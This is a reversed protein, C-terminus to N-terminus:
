SAQTGFYRLGLSMNYYYAIALDLSFFTISYYRFCTVVLCSAIGWLTKLLVTSLVMFYVEFNLVM